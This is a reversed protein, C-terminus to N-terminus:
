RCQELMETIQAVEANLADLIRIEGYWDVFDPDDGMGPYEKLFRQSSIDYKGEFSLINQKTRDISIILLEYERQLASYLTDYARTSDKVKLEIIAPM